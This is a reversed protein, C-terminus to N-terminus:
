LGQMISAQNLAAVFNLSNLGVIQDFIDLRLIIAPLLWFEKRFAETPAYFQTYRTCELHEAPPRPVSDCFPFIMM